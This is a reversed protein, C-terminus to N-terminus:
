CVAVTMDFSRWPRGLMKAAEACHVCLHFVHVRDTAPSIMEEFRALLVDLQQRHLQLQFVSLGIRQGYDLLLMALRERRRDDAV